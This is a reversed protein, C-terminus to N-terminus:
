RPPIRRVDHVAVSVATAKERLTQLEMSQTKAQAELFGHKDNAAARESELRTTLEAEHVASASIKQELARNAEERDRLATQLATRPTRAILWGLLVGGSLCAISILLLMSLEM